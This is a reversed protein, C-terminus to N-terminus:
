HKRGHAGHHPHHHAHHAHHVHPVHRAHLVIISPEASRMHRMPHMRAPAPHMMHATHVVPAAHVPAAHMTNAKHAPATHMHAPAPHMAHTARSMRSQAMMPMMMPMRMPMRMMQPAASAAALLFMAVIAFKMRSYFLILNDDKGKKMLCFLAHILIVKFQTEIVKFVLNCDYQRVDVIPQSFQILIYM